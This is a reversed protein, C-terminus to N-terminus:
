GIDDVYNVFRREATFGRGRVEKIKTITVFAEPDVERVIENAYYLKRTPVVCMIAKTKEGLAGTQIYNLTVGAQLETLLRKRIEEYKASVVYIQNQSQGYIMTKDLMISELVLVVIGLMIKEPTNVAAQAGVVVIDSIYVFIAVNRHFVKAFILNAIDMGGTSSGVRMVLGLALGMLVGAFLAALLTNDTLKDINPIRQMLALLAPYLLTSAISTFFLKKGIIILGLILLIGNLIFVVLAMDVPFFKAIVIAIGTTGGMVIDHPIIFAAVLFALLANGLLILLTTEINKMLDKKIKKM